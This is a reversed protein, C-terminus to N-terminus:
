DVEGVEVRRAAMSRAVGQEPLPYNAAMFQRAHVNTDSAFVQVCRGPLLRRLAYCAADMGSFDTGFRLVQRVGDAAAQLAQGGSGGEGEDQSSDVSICEISAAPEASGRARKATPQDACRCADAMARCTSCAVNTPRFRARCRPCSVASFYGRADRSVRQLVFECRCGSRSCRARWVASGRVGGSGSAAPVLMDLISANHASVTSQVADAVVPARVEGGGGHDRSDM